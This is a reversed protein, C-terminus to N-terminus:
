RGAGRRAPRYAMAGLLERVAHLTFADLVYRDATGPQLFDPIDEVSGGPLVVPLVKPVWRSRDSHLADRLLALESQMGRHRPGDVTGDGVAKCMPSAVVLVFDAERIERQAWLSWDKREGVDWFDIHVDLSLSVLFRAFEITCAVHEADDHAYCIFLRPVGPAAEPRRRAGPPSPPLLGTAETAFGDQGCGLLLAFQVARAAPRCDEGDASPVDFRAGAEVHLMRSGRPVALVVFAVHSGPRIGGPTVQRWRVSPGGIGFVDVKPAIAPLHVDGVVGSAPALNLYRNLVYAAADQQESVAHPVADLVTAGGADEETAFSFGVELWPIPALNRDVAVEYNIRVLYCDRGITPEPGTAVPHVQWGSLRVAGVAFGRPETELWRAGDDVQLLEIECCESMSWSEAHSSM